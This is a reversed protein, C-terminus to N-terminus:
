KKEAKIKAMYPRVVSKIIKFGGSLNRFGKCVFLKNDLITYTSHEKIAWAVNHKGLEQDYEPHTPYCSREPHYCGMSGEYKCDGEFWKVIPLQEEIISFKTNDIVSEGEEILDCIPKILYELYEKKQKDYMKKFLEIKYYKNNYCELNARLIGLPENMYKETLELRLSEIYKIRESHELDTLQQKLNDEDQDLKRRKNNCLEIQNKVLNIKESM